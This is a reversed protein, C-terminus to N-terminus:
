NKLFVTWLCMYKRFPKDNTACPWPLCLKHLWPTWRGYWLIFRDDGNSIRSFYSWIQLWIVNFILQNHGWVQIEQFNSNSNKNLFGMNILILPKENESSPLTDHKQYCNCNECNFNWTSSQLVNWQYSSKIRAAKYEYWYHTSNRCHLVRLWVVLQSWSTSPLDGRWKCFYNLKQSWTMCANLWGAVVWGVFKQRVALVRNESEM